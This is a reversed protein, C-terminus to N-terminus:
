VPDAGALPYVEIPEPYVFARAVQAEAAKREEAPSVAETAKM